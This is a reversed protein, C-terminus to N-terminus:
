LEVAIIFSLLTLMSNIIERVDHVLNCYQEFINATVCLDIRLAQFSSYRSQCSDKLDQSCEFCCTSSFEQSILMSASQVTNINVKSM